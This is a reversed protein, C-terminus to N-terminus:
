CTEQSVLAQQFIGQRWKFTELFPHDMDKKQPINWHNIKKKFVQKRIQIHRASPELSQNM